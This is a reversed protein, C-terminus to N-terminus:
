SQKIPSFFYEPLCDNLEKNPDPSDFVDPLKSESVVIKCVTMIEGSGELVEWFLSRRRSPEANEFLILWASLLVWLFACFHRSLYAQTKLLGFKHQVPPFTVGHCKVGLNQSKRGHLCANISLIVPTKGHTGHTRPLCKTCAQVGACRCVTGRSIMHQGLLLMSLPHKWWSM